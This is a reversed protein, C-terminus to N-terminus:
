TDNQNLETTYKVERYHNKRHKKTM